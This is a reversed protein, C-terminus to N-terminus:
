EESACGARGRSVAAAAAAARVRGGARDVASRNSKSPAVVTKRGGSSATRVLSDDAPRRNIESKVSHSSCEIVIIAFCKGYQSRVHAGRVGPNIPINVGDRQVPGECIPEKQVKQAVKWVGASSCRRGLTRFIFSFNLM